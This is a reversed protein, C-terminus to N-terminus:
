DGSHPRCVAPATPQQAAAPFVPPVRHTQIIRALSRRFMDRETQPLEAVLDDLEASVDHHFAAAARNGSETLTVRVARRDGPVAARVALGRREARDVLGTLAAKEVGFLGAVEAMGRPREALICLLKAQAPTLDHHDAVRAYVGQVLFSMRVLGAAVGIAEDAGSAM